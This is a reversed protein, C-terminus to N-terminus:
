QYNKLCIKKPARKSNTENKGSLGVFSIVLKIKVEKKADLM